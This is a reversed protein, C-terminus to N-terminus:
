PSCFFSSMFQHLAGYSQRFCTESRREPRRRFSVSCEVSNGYFATHGFDLNFYLVICCLWFDATSLLLLINNKEAKVKSANRIQHQFKCSPLAINSRLLTRWISIYRQVARWVNEVKTMSNSWGWGDCRLRQCFDRQPASLMLARM